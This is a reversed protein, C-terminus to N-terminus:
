SKQHMAAKLQYQWHRKLDEHVHGNLYRMTVESIPRFDSLNTGTKTRVPNIRVITLYPMKKEKLSAQITMLDDYSAKHTKRTLSIKQWDPDDTQALVEIIKESIPTKFKDDLLAKKANEIDLRTLCTLDIVEQHKDYFHDRNGEGKAKQKSVLRLSALNALLYAGSLCAIGVKLGVESM